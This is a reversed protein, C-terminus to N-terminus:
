KETRSFELDIQLFASITLPLGFAGQPEDEPDVDLNRALLLNDTNLINLLSLGIVGTTKKIRWNYSASADWRGYTPGPVDTGESYYPFGSGFIYVTQFTLAKRQWVLGAKWENRQDHPARLWSDTDWEPFRVVAHSLTYSAWLRLQQWSREINFQVGYSRAEGESNFLPYDEPDVPDFSNLGQLYRHFFEMGFKFGDKSYSTRVMNLLGRQVSATDSGNSLTWYRVLTFPGVYFDIPSQTQAYNGLHYAVEWYEDAQWILTSRLHPIFYSNDLLMDVRASLNWTVSPSLRIDDEIFVGIKNLKQAQYNDLFGELFLDISSYQYYIDSGFRLNHRRGNLQSISLEAKYEDFLLEQGVFLSDDLIPEDDFFALYNVTQRLRSTSINLETLWRDGHHCFKIANGIFRNLGGSQLPALDNSLRLDADLGQFSIQSRTFHYQWSFSETLSGSLLINQDNFQYDRFPFRQTFQDVEPLRYTFRGCLQVNIKPNIPLSLSAGAVQESMRITGQISDQVIAPANIHLRGGVRDGYRTGYASSLLDAGGIWLPNVHGLRINQTQFQYLPIGELYMQGQGLYSGRIHLDNIREGSALVATQQRLLGEVPDDSQTPSTNLQKKGLSIIDEGNKNFQSSRSDNDREVLVESLKTNARKLRIVLPQDAPIVTDVAKYALHRIQILVELVDSSIEFDGNEDTVAQSKDTSILAQIIPEGTELDVLKGMMRIQETSPFLVYVGGVLKFVIRCPTTVGQILTETAENTPGYTVKCNGILSPDYSFQVGRKATIQDLVEALPTEVFRFQEPQAQISVCSLLIM